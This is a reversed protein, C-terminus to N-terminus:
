FIIPKHFNIKLYYNTNYAKSNIALNQRIKVKEDVEFHGLRLFLPLTEIIDIEM